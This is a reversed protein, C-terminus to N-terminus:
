IDLEWFSTYLSIHLTMIFVAMAHFFVFFACIFSVFNCSVVIILWNVYSLNGIALNPVFSSRFIIDTFLQLVHFLLFGRRWLISFCPFFLMQWRQLHSKSDPDGLPVSPLCAKPTQKLPAAGPRSGHGQEERLSAPLTGCTPLAKPHMQKWGQVSSILLCSSVSENLHCTNADSNPSKTGSLEFIKVNGLTEESSPFDGVKQRNGCGM